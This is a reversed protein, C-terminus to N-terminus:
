VFFSKGDVFIIFMILFSCLGERPLCFLVNWFYINLRVWNTIDSRYSYDPTPSPLPCVKHNFNIIQSLVSKRNLWAKIWKVIEPTKLLKTRKTNFNKKNTQILTVNECFFYTFNEPVITYYQPSNTWTPRLTPVTYKFNIRVEFYYIIFIFLFLFLM